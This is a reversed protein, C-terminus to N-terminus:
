FSCYFLYVFIICFDNSIENAEPFFLLVFFEGTIGMAGKGPCQCDRRPGCGKCESGQINTESPDNSPIPGPPPQPYRQRQDYPYPQRQNYPYQNFQRKEKVDM